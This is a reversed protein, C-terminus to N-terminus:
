RMTRSGRARMRQKALEEQVISRFADGGLLDWKSGKKLVAAFTAAGISRRLRNASAIDVPEANAVGVLTSHLAPARRYRMAQEYAYAIALLMGEDWQRAVVNIAVPLASGHRQVYGIPFTISPLGSVSTLLCADLHEFSAHGAVVARYVLVDVGKEGMVREVERRNRDYREVALRRVEPQQAIDRDLAARCDAESRAGGLKEASMCLALMSRIPGNTTRLWEDVIHQSYGETSHQRNTSFDPINIDDVVTAGLSKLDGFLRREVNRVDQATGPRYTIIKGGSSDSGFSLLFGIRKGALGTRDLFAAYGIPRKIRPDLTKSDTSDPVAMVDLL